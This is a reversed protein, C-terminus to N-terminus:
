ENGKIGPGTPALEQNSRAAIEVRAWEARIQALDRAHDVGRTIQATIGLAITMDNELARLQELRESLELESPPLGVFRDLAPRRFGYVGLHHLFGQGHAATADPGHSPILHRSFYIARGFDAAKRAIVAKVVNLDAKEEESHSIGALTTIDAWPARAFLDLAERLAIPPLTPMDGQYNIVFEHTSDPDFAQAAAHVRDTGSRLQPDTLVAEFGDAQVAEVIERDGAAVLVPGINAAAAIQACRVIMPKGGIDALPKGPLRQAAMRAPIVILASLSM